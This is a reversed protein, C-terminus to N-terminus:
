KSRDIQRFENLMQNLVKGTKLRIVVQEHQRQTNAEIWSWEGDLAALRGLFDDKHLHVYVLFSDKELSDEFLM